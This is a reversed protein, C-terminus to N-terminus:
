NYLEMGEVTKIMKNLEEREHESGAEDYMREIQDIVRDKISHMSRGYGDRSMYRGTTRSRGRANSMNGGRNDYTMRPTFQTNYSRSSYGDDYDEEMLMQEVEKVEKMICVLRKLNEWENAPVEGKKVVNKLEKELIDDLEYLLKVDAM